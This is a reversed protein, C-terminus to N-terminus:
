RNHGIINNLLDFRNRYKPFDIFQKQCEKTSPNLDYKYYYVYIGAQNIMSYKLQSLVIDRPMIYYDVHKSAKLDHKKLKGFNSELIAGIDVIIIIDYDLCPLTPDDGKHLFQVMEAWTNGKVQIKLQGDILYDYGPQNKRITNANVLREKIPAFLAEVADEAIRESIKKRTVKDITHKKYLTYSEHDEQLATRLDDSPAYFPNIILSM